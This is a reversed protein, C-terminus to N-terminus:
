RGYVGSPSSSSKRLDDVFAATFEGYHIMILHACRVASEGVDSQLQVLRLNIEVGNKLAINLEVAPEGFNVFQRTDVFECTSPNESISWSEKGIQTWATRSDVGVLERDSLYSFRTRSLM